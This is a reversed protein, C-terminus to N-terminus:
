KIHCQKCTVPGTKEGAKKKAKHCKTCLKNMVDSKKKLQGEAKLKEIAGKEQPFISHCTNCDELVAQHQHHPFPVKGQKGGYLEIDKAGKNEVAVSLGALLSFVVIVVAITTVRM